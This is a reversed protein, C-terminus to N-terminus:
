RLLVGVSEKYGAQAAMALATMGTKSHQANITSGSFRLLMSLM